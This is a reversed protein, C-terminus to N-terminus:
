ILTLKWVVVRNVPYIQKLDKKLEIALKDLISPTFLKSSETKSIKEKASQEIKKMLEAKLARPLSKIVMILLKIKVTKNDKTKIKNVSIIREKFRRSARHIFGEQIMYKWPKTLAKEGKTDIIKLVM